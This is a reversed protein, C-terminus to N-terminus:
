ENKKFQKQLCIKVIILCSYHQVFILLEHDIDLIEIMYNIKFQYNQINSTTSKKNKVIKLVIINKTDGLRNV